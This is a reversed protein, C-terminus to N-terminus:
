ETIEHWYRALHEYSLADTEKYLDFPKDLAQGYDRGFPAANIRVESGEPLHKKNGLPISLRLGNYAHTTGGFVTYDASDTLTTFAQLKAGNLFKKEISFTAGIDEALYRGLQAKLTINQEPFSYWGNLHGTILSDPTFGLHLATAPDRKVVAWSEAGLAFRKGFPRYLIEGGLGGYMEELYGGSIASHLAPSFSHTFTAYSRDLSLTSRAFQAVNSRVPLFSAPRYEELRDLNDALNLRLATGTHIFGLYKPLEMKGILSSRYLAGSDEESLSFQNDLILSFQETKFQSLMFPSTPEEDSGKTDFRANM